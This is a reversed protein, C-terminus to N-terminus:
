FKLSKFISIDSLRKLHKESELLKSDHTDYKITGHHKKIKRKAFDTLNENLGIVLNVQINDSCKNYGTRDQFYIPTAKELFDDEYNSVQDLAHQTYISFNDNRIPNGEFKINHNKIETVSTLFPSLLVFDPIHWGTPKISKIYYRVSYVQKEFVDSCLLNPFKQYLPHLIQVEFYKGKYGHRDHIVKDYQELSQLIIKKKNPILWDYNLYKPAQIFEKSLVETRIFYTDPDKTKLAYNPFEFLFTKDYTKLDKMKLGVTDLDSLIKERWNKVIRKCTQIIRLDDDEESFPIVADYLTNIRDSYGIDKKYLIVPISSLRFDFNSFCDKSDRIYECLNDQFSNYETNDDVIIADFPAQKGILYNRIFKKGTEIETESFINGHTTLNQSIMKSITKERLQENGLLLIRM